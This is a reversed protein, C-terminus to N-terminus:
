NGFGNVFDQGGGTVVIEDEGIDFSLDIEDEEPEIMISSDSRQLPPLPAISKSQFYGVLRSVLVFLITLGFSSFFTSRCCV